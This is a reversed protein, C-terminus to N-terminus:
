PSARLYARLLVVAAVADIRRKRDRPRVGGEALLSNAEKTTLREDLEVVDVYPLRARLSACLEHVRRSRASEHGALHLPLGVVLTTAGRADVADVIRELLEERDETEIVGIPMAAIRLPDCAALGTRREGYDVAVVAGRAEM